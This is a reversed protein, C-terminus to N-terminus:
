ITVFPFKAIQHSLMNLSQIGFLLSPLQFLMLGLILIFPTRQAQTSIFAHFISIFTRWFFSNFIIRSQVPLCHLSKLFPVSYSFQPYRTVVRALCNQVCQLKLIDKPAINYLLSNRYYLKRTILTTAITKAVSLYFYRRICRLDRIQSFCSRCTLSM